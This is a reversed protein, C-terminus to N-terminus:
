IQAITESLFQELAIAIGFKGPAKTEVRVVRGGGHLRMGQFGSTQLLLEVRVQFGEALATDALLFVGQLCVNETTGSVQRLGGNSSEVIAPQQLSFRRSRRRETDHV